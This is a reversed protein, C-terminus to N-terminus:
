RTYSSLHIIYCGDYHLAPVWCSFTHVACFVKNDLNQSLVKLFLLFILSFHCFFCPMYLKSYGLKSLEQLLLGNGTGVDLISWGSLDKEPQGAPLCNTSNVHNPLNRQSIELCVNKTWTAMNEMVDPGFRCILVYIVFKYIIFNSIIVEM